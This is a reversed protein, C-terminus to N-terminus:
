VLIIADFFLLAQTKFTNKTVSQILCLEVSMPGTSYRLIDTLCILMIAISSLSMGTILRNLLTRKSCVQEYWIIGYLLITNFSAAVIAFLISIFKSPRNEFLGRYIEDGENEVSSTNSFYKM